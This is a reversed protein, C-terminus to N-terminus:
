SFMNLSNEADSGITLGNTKIKTCAGRFTAVKDKYAVSGQFGYVVAGNTIKAEMEQPSSITLIGGNVILEGIKLNNVTIEEIIQNTASVASKGKINMGSSYVQEASGSITGEDFNISGAFGNLMIQGSAEVEKNDVLLTFPQLSNLHVMTPTRTKIEPFSNVAMTFAVNEEFDGKEQFFVGFRESIASFFDTLKENFDSSFIPLVGLGVVAALIILTAPIKWDM